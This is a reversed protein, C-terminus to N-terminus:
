PEGWLCRMCLGSMREDSAGTLEAHCLSCTGYLSVEHFTGTTTLAGGCRPCKATTANPGTLLEGRVGLDDAMWGAGCGRVRNGDSDAVSRCAVSARIM